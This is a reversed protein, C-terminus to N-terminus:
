WILPYLRGLINASLVACSLLSPDCGNIGSVEYFEAERLLEKRERASAPLECEADRLFNLITAFHQTCLVCM